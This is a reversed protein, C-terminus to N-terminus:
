YSLPLDDGEALGNRYVSLPVSEHPGGHTIGANNVVAILPLASKEAWSSVSALVANISEEKTVDLIVPVLTKCADKGHTKVCEEVAATGDAEKRVGAFM